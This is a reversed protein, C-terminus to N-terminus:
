KFFNQQHYVEIQAIFARCFESNELQQEDAVPLKPYLKRIQAAFLGQGNNTKTDGTVVPVNRVGCSPSRTKFIYGSISKSWDQQNAIETLQETVDLSSTKTGIARLGSETLLLHIPERPIGMGIAMEPCFAQYEFKKHLLNLLTAHRKHKGDYRVARGLLCSSVGVVPLSANM